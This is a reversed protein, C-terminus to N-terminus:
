RSEPLRSDDAFDHKVGGKKNSDYGGTRRGIRPVKRFSELTKTSSLVAMIAALTPCIGPFDETESWSGALLRDAERGM